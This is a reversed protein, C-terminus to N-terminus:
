TSTVLHASSWECATLRAVSSAAACQLYNQGVQLKVLVNENRASDKVSVLADKTRAESM